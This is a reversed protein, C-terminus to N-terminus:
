SSLKFLKTIGYIGFSIAWSIFGLTFGASIGVIMVDMYVKFSETSFIM